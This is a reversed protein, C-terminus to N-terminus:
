ARRRRSCRPAAARPTARARPRRRPRGPVDLTRRRRVDLGRPDARDEPGKRSMLGFLTRYAEPRLLYRGVGSQNKPPRGPGRWRRTRVSPDAGGRARETRAREAFGTHDSHAHTLLVTDLDDLTPRAIGVARSGDWDGPAGADVLTLKGGDEVLYFNVVGQTLRHIGDAVQVPGALRRLRLRRTPSGGKSRIAETAGNVTATIADRDLQRRRGSGEEGSRRPVRRGAGLGGRVVRRDAGEGRAEARARRRPTRRRRLDRSATGTPSRTGVVFNRRGRGM